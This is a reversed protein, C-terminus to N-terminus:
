DKEIVTLKDIFMDGYNIENKNKQMFYLVRDELVRERNRNRELCTQIDINFDVIEIEIQKGINDSITIIDNIFENLKDSLCNTDDVIINRDFILCLEILKNRAIRLFRENGDTLKNSDLMERLDDRNIRKTGPNELVYNKSWVSKGSGPIGVLIKINLKKM